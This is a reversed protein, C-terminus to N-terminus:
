KAKSPEFEFSENNWPIHIDDVHVSWEADPLIRRVQSLLQCWYQISRGMVYQSYFPLKTAGEFIVDPEYPEDAPYVCFDEGDYQEDSIQCLKLLEEIPYREVASNVAIAEAETLGNARTATYYISVGMGVMM